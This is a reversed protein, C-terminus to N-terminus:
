IPTVTAHLYGSAVAETPCISHVAGLAILAKADESVTFIRFYAWRFHCESLWDTIKSDAQVLWPANMDSKPVTLM